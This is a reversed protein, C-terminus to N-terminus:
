MVFVRVYTHVPGHFKERRERPSLATFGTTLTINLVFAPPFALRGTIWLDNTVNPHQGQFGAAIRKTWWDIGGATSREVKEKM